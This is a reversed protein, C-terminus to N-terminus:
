AMVGVFFAAGLFGLVTLTATAEFFEITRVMTREQPRYTTRGGQGCLHAVSGKTAISCTARSRHARRMGFLVSLRRIEDFNLRAHSRQSL